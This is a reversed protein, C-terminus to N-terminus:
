HCGKALNESYVSVVFALEDQMIEKFFDFMERQEEENFLSIEEALQPSVEALKLIVEFAPILQLRDGGKVFFLFLM